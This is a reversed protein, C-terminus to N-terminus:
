DGPLRDRVANQELLMRDIDSESAGAISSAVNKAETEGEARFKEQEARSTQRKIEDDKKELEKNKNRIVLLLFAGIAGLITTIISMFKNM